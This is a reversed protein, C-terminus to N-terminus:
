FCHRGAYACNRNKKLVVHPVADIVGYGILAGIIVSIIMIKKTTLSKMKVEGEFFLFPADAQM